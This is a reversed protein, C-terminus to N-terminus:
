SHTQNKFKKSMLQGYKDVYDRAWNLGFEPFRELM